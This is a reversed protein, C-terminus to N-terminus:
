PAPLEDLWAIVKARLSTLAQYSPLTAYFDDQGGSLATLDRGTPLAKRFAEYEAAIRDRAPGKTAALRKELTAAYRMDNWAGRVGEWALTPVHTGPAAGPYVNVWTASGIKGGFEDWPEGFFDYSWFWHSGLDYRYLRLGMNFRAGGYGMSATSGTYGWVAKGTEKGLKSIAAYDGNCVLIDSIPALQKAWELMDMTVGYVRIGPAAEKIQRYRLTAEPMLRETPEDYHLLVVEPWGKKTKLFADFQRIGEKYAENIVEDDLRAVKATKGGVATKEALPRNYLKCLGREYSGNSDNGLAIVVPGALGAATLDDIVKAIQTADLKLKGDELTMKWPNSGWFWLMGQVGHEKWDVFTERNPIIQNACFAGIFRSPAELAYPKVTVQLRITRDPRGASSAVLTYDYTGAKADAGITAEVWYQRNLGKGLDLPAVPQIRLSSLTGNKVNKGGARVYAPEVQRVKVEVGAISSGPVLKVILNTLDAVAHVGLSLPETQNRASLIVAPAALEQRGIRSEPNLPLNYDRVFVAAGAQVAQEDFAPATEGAKPADAAPVINYGAAEALQRQKELPWPSDKGPEVALAALSPVILFLLVGTKRM